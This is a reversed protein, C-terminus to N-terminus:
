LRVAKARNRVHLIASRLVRVRIKEVKPDVHQLWESGNAFHHDLDTAIILWAERVAMQREVRTM